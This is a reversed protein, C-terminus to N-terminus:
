IRNDAPILLQEAAIRVLPVERGLYLDDTYPSYRKASTKSHTIACRVAYIREALKGAIDARAADTDAAIFDLHPVEAFSLHGSAFYELAGDLYYSLDKTFIDIDLRKVVADLARLETHSVEERRVGLLRAAETAARRIDDTPRVLVGGAAGVKERLDDFWTENMEHELVHYYGMFASFPDGAAVARVYRLSLEEDVPTPNGLLMDGMRGTTGGEGIKQIFEASPASVQRVIVPQHLTGDLRNVDLVPAYVISAEYAVRVRYATALQEFKEPAMGNESEMRLSILEPKTMIRLLRLASIRAVSGDALARRKEQDQLFSYLREGDFIDLREFGRRRLACRVLLEVSPPGVSASVEMGDTAFETVVRKDTPPLRISYTTDNRVLMELHSPGFIQTDPRERSAVLVHAIRAADEYNIEIEWQAHPRDAFGLYTERIVDDVEDYGVMGRHISATLVFVARQGDEDEPENDAFLYSLLGVIDEGVQRVDTLTSLPGWNSSNEESL